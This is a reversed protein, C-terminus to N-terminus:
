SSESSLRMRPAFKKMYLEKAFRYLEIDARNREKIEELLKKSYVEPNSTNLRPITKPTPFGLHEFLIPLSENLKETIGFFFFRTRLNEKASKLHREIPISKDEPDFSSLYLTQHNKMSILPDENTMPFHMTPLHPADRSQHFRKWFQHASLVRKIPERLFTIRKGPVQQLYFFPIHGRVLRHNLFWETPKQTLHHMFYPRTIDSKDFNLELLTRTTIGGNKPIHHFILRDGEQASSLPSFFLISLLLLSLTKM